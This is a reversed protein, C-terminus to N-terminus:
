FARTVSEMAQSLMLSWSLLACGTIVVLATKGPNVGVDAYNAVLGYALLHLFAALVILSVAVILGRGPKGATMMSFWDRWALALEHRIFWPLTAPQM